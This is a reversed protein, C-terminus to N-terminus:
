KATAPIALTILSSELLQLSARMKAKSTFSCRADEAASLTQFCTMGPALTAPPVPCNDFAPAVVAGNMDFADISVEADSAGVNTTTCVIQVTGNAYVFPTHLAGGALAPAAAASVAIGLVLSITRKM